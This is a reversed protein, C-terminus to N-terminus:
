LALALGWEWVFRVLVAPPLPGWLLLGLVLASLGNEIRAPLDFGTDM